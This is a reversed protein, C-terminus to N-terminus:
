GLGDVRSRMSGDGPEPQQLFTELWESLRQQSRSPMEVRSIERFLIDLDGLTDTDTRPSLLEVHGGDARIGSILEQMTSARSYPVRTWLQSRLPIGAAFLYFGGDLAPGIVCADGCNGLRDIAEAVAEPTLQPSDTGILIVYDHINELAAYVAHLRDGLTGQGTWIAPFAQWEERGVAEAEAVAWYPQLDTRYRSALTALTESVAAVSLRYFIEANAVGIASALRTKVPSLGPTKAFVAIAGSV